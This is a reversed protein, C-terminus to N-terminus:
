SAAKKSRRKIQYAKEARRCPDCPKEGNTTHSRYGGYTGCTAAFPSPQDIIALLTACEDESTAVRLLQRAKYRCDGCTADETCDRCIPNIIYPAYAQRRARTIDANHRALEIMLERNITMPRM